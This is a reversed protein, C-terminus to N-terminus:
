YRALVDPVPGGGHQRRFLDEGLRFAITNLDNFDYIGSHPSTLRPPRGSHYDRELRAQLQIWGHHAALARAAAIGQRAVSAHSGTYPPHQQGYCERVFAHAWQNANGRDAGLERLHNTYSLLADRLGLSIPISWGIPGAWTQFFRTAALLSSSEPLVRPAACRLVRLLSPGARLALRQMTARSPGMLIVGEVSGSTSVSRTGFAERQFRVRVGFFCFDEIDPHVEVTLSSTDGGFQVQANFSSALVYVFAQPTPNEILRNLREESVEMDAGVTINRAIEASASASLSMESETMRGGHTRDHRPTLTRSTGLDVSSRTALSTEGSLGFKFRVKGVEFPGWEVEVGFVQAM